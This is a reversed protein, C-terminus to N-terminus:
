YLFIILVSNFFFLFIACILFKKRFLQLRTRSWITTYSIPVAHQGADKFTKRKLNYVVTRYTVQTINWPIYLTRSRITRTPLLLTYTRRLKIRNYAVGERRSAVAISIYLICLLPFKGDTRIRAFITSFLFIPFFPHSRIKWYRTSM